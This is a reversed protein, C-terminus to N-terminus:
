YACPVCLSRPVAFVFCSKPVAIVFFLVPCSFENASCGLCLDICVMRISLVGLVIVSNMIIRQVSPLTNIQSNAVHLCPSKNGAIFVLVSAINCM